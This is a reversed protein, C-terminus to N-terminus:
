GSIITEIKVELKDLNSSFKMEPSNIIRVEGLQTVKQAHANGFLFLMLLIIMTKM